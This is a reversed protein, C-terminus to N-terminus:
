GKCRPCPKSAFDRGHFSKLPFVFGGSVLAKHATRKAKVRRLPHQQRRAVNANAGSPLPGVINRGVTHCLATRLSLLRHFYGKGANVSFPSSGRLDAACAACALCSNVLGRLLHNRTELNSKCTEAPYGAQHVRAIQHGDACEDLFIGEGGRSNRQGRVPASNRPHPPSLFTTM